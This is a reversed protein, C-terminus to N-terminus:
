SVRDLPSSRSVAVKCNECAPVQHRLGKIFLPIFCATLCTPVGALLVVAWGWGNLKGPKLTPSGVHGCQACAVDESRWQHLVERLAVGHGLPVQLHVTYAKAVFKLGQTYKGVSSFISEEAGEFEEKPLAVISAKPGFAPFCYALTSEFLMLEAAGKTGDPLGKDVTADWLAVPEGHSSVFEEFWTRHAGGRLKAGRVHADGRLTKIRETPDMAARMGVLSSGFEAASPADGGAMAGLAVELARGATAKVVQKGTSEDMEQKAADYEGQSVVGADRLADLKKLDHKKTDSMVEGGPLFAM